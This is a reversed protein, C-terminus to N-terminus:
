NKAWFCQGGPGGDPMKAFIQAVGEGLNEFTHMQLSLRLFINWRSHQDTVVVVKRVGYFKDLIRDVIKSM